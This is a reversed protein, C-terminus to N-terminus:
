NLNAAVTNSDLATRPNYADAIGKFGSVRPTRHEKATELQPRALFVTNSVLCLVVALILSTSSKSGM